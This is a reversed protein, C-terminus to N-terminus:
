TRHQFLFDRARRFLETESMDDEQPAPRCTHWGQAGARSARRM